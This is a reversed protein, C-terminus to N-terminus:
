QPSYLKRSNADGIYSAPWRIASVTLAPHATLDVLSMQSNDASVTTKNTETLTATKEGGTEASTCGTLFFSFAVM